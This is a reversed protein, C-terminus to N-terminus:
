DVQRAVRDALALDIEPLLEALMLSRPWDDYANLLYRCAAPEGAAQDIAFCLRAFREEVEGVTALGDGVWGGYAILCAAECPWDIVCQLPPPSTTGGQILREDDTAVAERLARLAPLSLMPALTRWVTRWQEM